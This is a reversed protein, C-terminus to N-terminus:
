KANKMADRLFRQTIDEAGRHIAGFLTAGIAGVFVGSAAMRNARNNSEVRAREYLVDSNEDSKFVSMKEIDGASVFAGDILIRSNGTVYPIVIDELVDSENVCDKEIYHKSKTKGVAKTEVIVHIYSM